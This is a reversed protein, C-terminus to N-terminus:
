TFIRESCAFDLITKVAIYFTKKINEQNHIMSKCNIKVNISKEDTMNTHSQAVCTYMGSGAEGINRQILIQEEKGTEGVQICDKYWTVNAPPNGGQGKCICTIDDKENVTICRSCNVTM